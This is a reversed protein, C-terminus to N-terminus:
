SHARSLFKPCIVRLLAPQKTLVMAVLFASGTLFMVWVLVAMSAHDAKLCCLGALVFAVAGLVRLQNVNPESNCAPYLQRWHVRMAASIWSMGLLCLVAALILWMAEFM